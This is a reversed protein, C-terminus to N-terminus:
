LFWLFTHTHTHIEECRLNSLFCSLLLSSHLSQFTEVILQFSPYLPSALLLASPLRGRHAPLPLTWLNLTSPCGSCAGSSVNDGEDPIYEEYHFVAAKALIWPVKQGLPLWFEGHYGCLILVQKKGKFQFFSFKEKRHIGLPILLSCIWAPQQNKWVLSKM